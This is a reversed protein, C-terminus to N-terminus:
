SSQGDDVLDLIEPDAPIGSARTADRYLEVLSAMLAAYRQRDAILWPRLLDVAERAAQAAEPPRGLELDCAGAGARALAMMPEYADPRERRGRRCLDELQRLIELAEGYREANRLMEGLNNLIMARQLDGHTGTETSGRYELASRTVELAEDLHDARRLITGLRILAAVAVDQQYPTEDAGRERRVAVAERASHLAEDLRELSALASGHHVLALTLSTARSEIGGAMLRRNLRISEQLPELAEEYRGLDNLMLGQNVLASALPGAQEEGFRGAREELLGVAKDTPGIAEGVRELDRLSMGLNLLARALSDAFADPREAHLHRLIRVAEQEAALSEEGRGASALAMSYNGLLRALDQGYEIPREAHLGRVWELANEAVTLADQWLGASYLMLSFNMMTRYYQRYDQDDQPVRGQLELSEAALALAEQHWGQDNLVVARLDLSAALSLRAEEMDLDLAARHVAVARDLVDVAEGLLGLQRLIEGLNALAGGLSIKFLTPYEEDLTSFRAVASEAAKRAEELAGTQDLRLSLNHWLAALEAREVMGPETWMGTRLELLQRAAVLGVELLPPSQQLVDTESRSAIEELLELDDLAHLHRSLLRGMPDGGEIAVDLAVGALTAIRQELLGEIWAEAYAKRRAIRNLRTLASHDADSRFLGPHERSTM